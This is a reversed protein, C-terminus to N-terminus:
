GQVSPPWVRDWPQAETRSFAVGRGQPHWTSGAIGRPLKALIMKPILVFVERRNVSEILKEPIEIVQVGLFVGFIWVVWFVRPELWRKAGAADQV